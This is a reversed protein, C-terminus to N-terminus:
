VDFCANLIYQFFVAYVSGAPYVQSSSSWIAFAHNSWAADRPPSEGELLLSSSKAGLEIGSSWGRSAGQMTVNSVFVRVHSMRESSTGGQSIRTGTRIFVLSPQLRTRLVILYVNDLWFSGSNVMLFTDQLVVVCQRPKLPLLQGLTSAQEASLSLSSAVNAVSCNGQVSM